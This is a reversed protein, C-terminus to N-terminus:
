DVEKMNLRDTLSSYPSRTVDVKCVVQNWKSHGVDYNVVISGFEGFNINITDNRFMHNPVYTVYSVNWKDCQKHLTALILDHTEYGPLIIQRTVERGGKFRIYELEGIEVSSLEDHYNRVACYLAITALICVSLILSYCVKRM